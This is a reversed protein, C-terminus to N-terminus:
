AGLTGFDGISVTGIMDVTAPGISMPNRIGPLVTVDFLETIAGEFGISEVVEGKALDVVMVGCAAAASRKALEAEIPLTGFDDHRAKSITVLAHGNHFSLGRLFGPCFAVDERKGSVPDIRVIWGRGSDLLWVAGEHVRPSHPMSLGTAVIEGSPVDILIGGSEKNARWGDKSDTTGFATVYRVTGDTIAMGNLHCRDEPALASIFSPKWLPQFSYTEDITALCSYRSNTFVLRGSAEMGLEHLDLYNVTQAGRPVFVADHANNAFHGPRLMDRLTWLQFMSAVSLTRDAFHLGTARAYNQESFAIRGDPAVGALFLQGTQYSTFALSCANALMWKALGPTIRINTGAPDYDRGQALMAEAETRSIASM